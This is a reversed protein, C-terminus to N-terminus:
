VVAFGRGWRVPSLNWYCGTRLFRVLRLLLSSVSRQQGHRRRCRSYSETREKEGCPGRYWLQSIWFPSGRETECSGVSFGRVEFELKTSEGDSIGGVCWVGFWAVLLLLLLDNLSILLTQPFNGEGSAISRNSNLRGGSPWLLIRDQGNLTVEVPESHFHGLRASPNSLTEIKSERM